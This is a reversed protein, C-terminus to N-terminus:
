QHCDTGVVTRAVTDKEPDGFVPGVQSAEASYVSDCSGAAFGAIGVDADPSDTAAAPAIAAESGAASAAQPATAATQASAPAPASAAAFAAAFSFAAAAIKIM